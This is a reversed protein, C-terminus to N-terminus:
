GRGSQEIRKRAEVAGRGSQEIRKRCRCKVTSHRRRGSLEEEQRSQEEEKGRGSM